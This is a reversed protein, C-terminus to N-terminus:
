FFSTNRCFTLYNRRPRVALIFSLDKLHSYNEYKSFFILTPTMGLLQIKFIVTRLTSISLYPFYFKIFDVLKLVERTTCLYSPSFSDLCLYTDNELSSSKCFCLHLDSYNNMVFCFKNVKEFSYSCTQM